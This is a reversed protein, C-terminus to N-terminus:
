NNLVRFETRRNALHQAETCEVGNSCKNLLKSEGYGKAVLQTPNIGKAILYDAVSKARRDSLDQNFVDSGRSDTHSALEVKLGDRLLPLLREDIIKKAAPTLTASNLNWNIPLPNYNVLKCEVEKWETLGGKKVLIEKSVTEFIAPVIIEEEWADKVLVTKTISTYEAPIEIQRTTPPTVMVVKKIKEKVEPIDIKRTTPPTTMVTYTFSSNAGLVPSKTTFADKGLTKLPITRYQAPVETYCWFQCDNPNDSICNEQSITLKWFASPSKTMITKSGDAFVAPVVQLASADDKSVYSVTKTGFEAPVLELRHSAEKVVVEVEITEYVAPVVELKYSADKKLVKETVKKYEAPHTVIKKYAPSIEVTETQTEWVDPTTCRVYCKGPEPNEPLDQAQIMTGMFLVSVLLLFFKKM